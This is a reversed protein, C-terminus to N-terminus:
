IFRALTYYVRPGVRMAKLQDAVGTATNNNNNNHTVAKMKSSTTSADDSGGNSEASHVNSLKNLSNLEYTMLYTYTYTTM